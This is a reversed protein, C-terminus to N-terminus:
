GLFIEIFVVEDETLRYQEMVKRIKETPSVSEDELLICVYNGNIVYHTETNPDNFEVGDADSDFCYHDAIYFYTKQPTFHILVNIVTDDGNIELGGSFESLKKFLKNVM